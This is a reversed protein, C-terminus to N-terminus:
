IFKQQILYDRYALKLGKKLSIKPRWGYKRAYRAILLKSKKNIKM